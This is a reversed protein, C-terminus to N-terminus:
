CTPRSAATSCAADDPSRSRACRCHAPRDDDRRGSGHVARGRGLRHDVEGTIPHGDSSVVRYAMPYDGAPGTTLTQAVVPGDVTPERRDVTTGDAATVVVYAPTAIDETFTLVVQAPLTDLRAGDTPSTSVLGAHASAATPTVVVLALAAAALLVGLAGASHRPRHPRTTPTQTM